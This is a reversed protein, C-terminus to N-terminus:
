RGPRATERVEGSVEMRRRMPQEGALVGVLDVLPQLTRNLRALARAAPSDIDGSLAQQLFDRLPDETEPFTVRRVAREADIGALRKAAQVATHFGGLEDVLGNAKAAEGSWVKGQAVERVAERSMGRGQAVKGVFDGYSEDLGDQLHQWEDDTFPQNPSWYDARPGAQVGDFNVSLKAFLDKAVFKGTVVGISGTLTGPSAVIHNAPAAVFYGGSAALNGMSVVLPKEAERAANVASWIADSAVYSGGPSDVRLVIAKVDDDDLADRIAPGVTDSGMVTDGFGPNFESESLAVAGLGHVVAVKPADEPPETMESSYLGFDVPEAEGGVVKVLAERMERRYGLTDILGAQKAAEASLPASALAERVDAAKVGRGEAVAAVVQNLWDDLVGRLNERQPAPMDRETFQSAAGKYAERQGLQPRVGIEDLAGRLFPTEISFGLLGFEGSPQLWVRDFASTLYAHITGGAGMGGGVSEAFAFAPKQSRERFRQVAAHLEQARALGLEGRGLRVSVAKIRDDTAAADLADVAEHLPLGGGGRALALPSGARREVVGDTLDLRLIASEPVTETPARWEALRQYGVGVAVGLLIVILGVSALFGVFCKLIFLILRM